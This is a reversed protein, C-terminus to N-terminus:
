KNENKIEEKESQLRENHSKIENLEKELQWELKKKAWILEENESRKRYFLALYILTSCILLIQIYIAFPIIKLWFPVFLLLVILVIFSIVFITEFIKNKM